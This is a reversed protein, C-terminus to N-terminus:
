EGDDRDEVDLWRSLWEVARFMLIITVFALLADRM